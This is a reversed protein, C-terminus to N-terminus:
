ALQAAPRHKCTMEYDAMAVELTKRITQRDADSFTLTNRYVIVDKDDVIDLQIPGDPDFFTVVPHTPCRREPEFSIACSKIKFQLEHLLEPLTLHNHALTRFSERREGYLTEEKLHPMTM